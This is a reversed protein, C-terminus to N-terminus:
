QVCWKTTGAWPQQSFLGSEDLPTRRLRSSELERATFANVGTCAASGAERESVRSSWAFREFLPAGGTRAVQGVAYNDAVSSPSRPSGGRVTLVFITQSM